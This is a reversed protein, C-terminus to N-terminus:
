PLLRLTWCCIFPYLLHSICICYFVVWSYLWLFYHCKSCCPHIQLTNHKTFYTLCLFVFVTHKWKYTSDLFLSNFTAFYFYVWLYLSCILQSWHPSPLSFLFLSNLPVCYVVDLIYLSCPYIKYCFSYLWYKIISYTSCLRYFNRIVIRCM